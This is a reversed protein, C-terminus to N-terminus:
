LIPKGPMDPLVYAKVGREGVCKLERYPLADARGMWGGLSCERRRDQNLQGLDLTNGIDPRVGPGRIMYAKEAARFPTWQNANVAALRSEADKLARKQASKSLASPKSPSTVPVTIMAALFPTTSAGCKLTMELVFRSACVHIPPTQM